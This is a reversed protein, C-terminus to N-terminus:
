FDDDLDDNDHDEGYLADWEDIADQNVPRHDDLDGVIIEEGPELDLQEAALEAETYSAAVVGRARQKVVTYITFAYLATPREPPTLGLADRVATNINTM